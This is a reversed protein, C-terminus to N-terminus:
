GLLKRWWPRRAQALEARLEDILVGKAAAEAQATAVDAIAVARAAEREAKATALEARLDALRELAGRLEGALQDREADSKALWRRLEAVTEELLRVHAGAEDSQEGSADEINPHVNPHVNERERDLDTEALHVRMRGDNGPVIRWHGERARRKARMRAADPTLGLQEGLEAYTLQLEPVNGRM